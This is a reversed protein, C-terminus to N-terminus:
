YIEFEWLSYGWGTNRATGYMRVYRASAATFSIDDTGGDSGTTSYVTTWTSNNTSVQIQYSSGYATEWLLVVRRVTMATGLDVTIWQPDSFASSWRTGTNGDVAYGPEYGAAENSSSTATKNLALNGGSTPTPAPTPTRTPTATAAQTPTPTATSVTGGPVGLIEWEAIQLISGSNNTMNLRYYSYATNNSFSYEHREFRNVFDEGSRSDLTSWTSGNNSGQLTWTYPDREPADNASTMAYRTIISTSSQQFQVWGSAHFTLYKTQDNNDILKAIDEGSPSDTYQASITGASNTIDTLNGTTPTPTQTAAPTSTRTATAATTQTPTPTPTRTPTNTAATGGGYVEFEWLSYGYGTDRATGYMRIYRGSGSVALTEVGGSGTTTSYISTWSSGDNSVQIQYASGFATEWNLVVSSVTYVAGLDVMIWQPDSFASSWRTGTNGDVAYNAEMGAAEVSSSSATKNLALNTGSAPTTPTVNPTPTPTPSNAGSTYTPTLDPVPTVITPSPTYTPTPTGGATGYVEFEWLSYGWATGRATGYMRIYRGTGSVSLTEVGGTGSTTTYISTWN